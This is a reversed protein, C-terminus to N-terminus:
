ALLLGDARQKEWHEHLRVLDDARYGRPDDVNTRAEIGLGDAAIAAQGSTFWHEFATADDASEFLPGFAVDRTSDVMVVRHETGDYVGVLQRVSM